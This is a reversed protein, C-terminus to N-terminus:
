MYLAVAVLAAVALVVALAVRAKGAPFRTQPLQAVPAVFVGLKAAVKRWVLYSVVFGFVFPLLLLCQFVIPQELLPFASVLVIVTILGFAFLVFFVLVSLAILVSHSTLFRFADFVSGAKAKSLM